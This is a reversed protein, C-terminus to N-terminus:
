QQQGLEITTTPEDEVNPNPQPNPQGQETVVVTETAYQTETVTVQEPQQEPQSAEEAVTETATETVTHPTPKPRASRKQEAERNAAIAKEEKGEAEDLKARADKMLERAGEIDGEAARSEMEELTGALEVNRTKDGKDFTGAHLMAGGAGAIVLTAAAAGILGHVFPGGRRRKRAQGLDIVEPEADAGEVLPAPPMQKDVDGKLELLLEALDDQGDSPNTGKSLETLFADDDVLPQLQDALGDNDGHHKPAM